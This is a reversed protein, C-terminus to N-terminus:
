FFLIRALPNFLDIYRLHARNVLSSLDCYFSDQFLKVVHTSVLAIGVLSAAM